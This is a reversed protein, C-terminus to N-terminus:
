HLFESNKPRLICRIRYRTVQSGVVEWMCAPDTPVRGEGPRALGADRLCTIYPVCVYPLDSVPPEGARPRARARASSGVQACRTQYRFITSNPINRRFDCDAGHGHFFGDLCGCLSSSKIVQIQAEGGRSGASDQGVFEYKNNYYSM